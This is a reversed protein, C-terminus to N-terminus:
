FTIIPFHKYIQGKVYKYCSESIVGWVYGELSVASNCGQYYVQCCFFRM